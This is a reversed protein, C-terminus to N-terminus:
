RLRRWLAFAAVLGCIMFGISGPEPVASQVQSISVNDLGVDFQTTSSFSITENAADATFRLSFPQWNQWYNALSLPATFNNMTSGVGQAKATVMQTGSFTGEGALMFDLDYVGGITFGSVLQSWTSTGSSSFGGGMTVFQHGTGAVTISGGGDSYGVGWFCGDTGGGCAGSHMWGGVDGPNHDDFPSSLVITEFSGNTLIPAALASLSLAVFTAVLILARMLM